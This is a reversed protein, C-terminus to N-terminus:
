RRREARSISTASPPIPFRPARRAAGGRSSAHDRHAQARGRRSLSPLRPQLAPGRQDPADDGTGPRSARSRAARAREYLDGSGSASGRDGDAAGERRRVSKELLGTTLDYDAGKTERPHRVLAGKTCPFPRAEEPTVPVRPEVLDLHSRYPERALLRFTKECVATRVGRRLVHGDDDVVERFPGRYIVAQKHDFCPGEKGKYAVVTESRFEIGEVTRWPAEARAALTIGYFGADEFAQLFRDDRFAGSVCGSWLEPDQRLAAPVDEDAVIDSIVARGGRRLVRFIEAFLRSKEDTRVLNLVCNSVM